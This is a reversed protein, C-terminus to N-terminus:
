QGGGTNGLKFFSLNSFKLLFDRSQYGALGVILGIGTAPLLRFPDIPFGLFKLESGAAVLFLGFVEILFAAVVVAVLIRMQDGSEEKRARVLLLILWGLIAGIVAVFPLFLPSPEFRVRVRIPSLSEQRALTKYRVLVTIVDDETSKSPILATAFAQPIRPQLWIRLNEEKSTAGQALHFSAFAGSSLGRIQLPKWLSPDHSSASASIIDVPMGKLNNTFPVGIEEDTALYVPTPKDQMVGGLADSPTRGFIPLEITGEERSAGDIVTFPVNAFQDDFNEGSKGRFIVRTVQGSNAKPRVYMEYHFHLPDQEQYVDNLEMWVVYDPTSAVFADHGIGRPADAFQVIKEFDFQAATTRVNQLELEIAAARLPLFVLMATVLAATPRPSM